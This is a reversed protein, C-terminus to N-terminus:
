KQQLARWGKETPVWYLTVGPTPLAREILGLEALAEVDEAAMDLSVTGGQGSRISLPGVWGTPHQKQSPDAAAIAELAKWENRSLRSKNVLTYPKGM